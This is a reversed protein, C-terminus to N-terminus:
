VFTRIENETRIEIIANNFKWQQASAPNWIFTDRHWTASTAVLFVPIILNQDTNSGGM